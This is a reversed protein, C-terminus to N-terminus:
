TDQDPLPLPYMYKKWVSEMSTPGTELDFDPDTFCKDFEIFVDLAVPHLSNFLSLYASLTGYSLGKKATNAESEKDYAHGNIFEYILRGTAKDPQDPDDKIAQTIGRTPLGDVVTSIRVHHTTLATSKM